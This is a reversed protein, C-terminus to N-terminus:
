APAPAKIEGEVIGRDELGVKMRIKIKGDVPVPFGSMSAGGDVGSQSAAIDPFISALELPPAVTSGGFGAFSKLWFRRDGKDGAMASQVLGFALHQAITLYAEELEVGYHAILTKTDIQLVKAIAGQTMGCARLAVVRAQTRKTPKHRPFPSVKQQSEPEIIDSKENTEIEAKLHSKPRVKPL